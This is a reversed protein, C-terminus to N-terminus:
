NRLHSGHNIQVLTPEDATSTAYVMLDHNSDTAVTMQGTAGAIDLLAGIVRANADYVSYIAGPDSIVEYETTSDVGTKTEQVAGLISTDGTAALDIEGSEVNVLDGETLDESDKIVVKQVTPPSSEPSLAVYRFGKRTDVAM